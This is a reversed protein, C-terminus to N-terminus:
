CHFPMQSHTYTHMQTFFTPMETISTIKTDINSKLETGQRCLNRSANRLHGGAEAKQKVAAPGKQEEKM